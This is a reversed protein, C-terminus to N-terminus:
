CARYSIMGQHAVALEVQHGGFGLTPLFPKVVSSRAPSCADTSAPKTECV